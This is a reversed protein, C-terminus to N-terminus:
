KIKICSCHILISHMPMDKKKHYKKSCFFCFSVNVFDTKMFLKGCVFTIQMFSIELLVENIALINNRKM